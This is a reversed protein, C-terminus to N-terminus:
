SPDADMLKPNRIYAWFPGGFPKGNAKAREIVARQEDNMQEPKLIAIRIM